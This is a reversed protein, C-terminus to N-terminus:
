QLNIGSRSFERFDKMYNVREQLEQIQSTLEQIAAHSGRLENRSFENIRMEQASKLEEM